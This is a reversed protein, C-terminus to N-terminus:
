DSADVRASRYRECRRRWVRRGRDGHGLLLSASPGSGSSSRGCAAVSARRAHRGHALVLRRPGVLAPRHRRSARDGLAGAEEVAILFPRLTELGM